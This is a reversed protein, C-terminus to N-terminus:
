PPCSTTPRYRAFIPGYVTQACDRELLRYDLLMEVIRHEALLREAHQLLVTDGLETLHVGDSWVRGAQDDAPLHRAVATFPTWVDLLLAGHAAAAKRAAENCRALEINMATVIGPDEIPGFPTESVVIVQRSYGTLQELMTTIHRTYEELDVAESLRNQFRRWVDNIGCGLFM